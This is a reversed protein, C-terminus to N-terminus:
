RRATRRRALRKAGPVPLLEIGAGKLDLRHVLVKIREREQPTFASPRGRFKRVLRGLEQREQPELVKWRDRALMAAQAAIMWPSVKVFPLKAM